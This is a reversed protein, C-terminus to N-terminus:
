RLGVRATSPSTGPRDRVLCRDHRPEHSRGRRSAPSRRSPPRWTRAPPATEPRRCGTPDPAPSPDSSELPHHDSRSREAGLRDDIDLDAAGGANRGVHGRDHVVEGPHLPAHVREQPGIGGRGARPLRQREDAVEIQRSAGDVGVEGHHLDPGLALDPQAVLEPADVGDEVAESSCGSQARGTRASPGPGTRSVRLPVPVAGSGRVVPWASSRRMAPVRATGAEADAAARGQDQPPARVSM